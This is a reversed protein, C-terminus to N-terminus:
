KRIRRGSALATPQREGPMSCADAPLASTASGPRGCAGGDLEAVAAIRATDTGGIVGRASTSWMSADTVTVCLAAAIPAFTNVTWPRCAQVEEGDRLSVSILWPLFGWALYRPAAHTSLVATGRDKRAGSEKM